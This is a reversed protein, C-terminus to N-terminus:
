KNFVETKPTNDDSIINSHSALDFRFNSWTWQIIFWPHKVVSILFQSSRGKLQRDHVYIEMVFPWYRPFHKWKIIDDHVLAISSIVASPSLTDVALSAVCSLTNYNVVNASQPSFIIVNCMRIDSCSAKNAFFFYSPQFQGSLYSHVGSIFGSPGSDQKGLSRAFM